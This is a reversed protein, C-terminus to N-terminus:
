RGLIVASKSEVTIEDNYYINKEFLRSSQGDLLIQWEGKPLRLKIRNKTSNSHVRDNLLTTGEQTFALYKGRYKVEIGSNKDYSFDKIHLEYIIPCKYIRVGFTDNNWGKPNTGEIDLIMSRIGNVGCATAYPDASIVASGDVEIEYDYYIGNLNGSIENIWVGCEGKEMSHVDLKKASEEKDSGTAYLRLTVKNATPAWLKFITKEKSYNM